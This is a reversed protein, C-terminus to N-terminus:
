RSLVNTDIIIAHAATLIKGITKKQIVLMVFQAKREYLKLTDNSCAKKSGFFNSHLNLTFFLRSFSM